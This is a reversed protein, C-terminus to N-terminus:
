LVVPESHAEWEDAFDSCVSKFDDDELLRSWRIDERPTDYSLLPYPALYQGPPDSRLVIPGATLTCEPEWEMYARSADLTEFRLVLFCDGEIVVRFADRAGAPTQTIYAPGAEHSR